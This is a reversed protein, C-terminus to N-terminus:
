VYEHLYIEVPGHRYLEDRTPIGDIIINAYDIGSQENRPRPFNGKLRASAM